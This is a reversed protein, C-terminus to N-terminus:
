KLDFIPQGIDSYGSYLIETEETKPSNMQNRVHFIFSCVQTFLALQNKLYHYSKIYYFHAGTNIIISGREKMIKRDSFFPNSM